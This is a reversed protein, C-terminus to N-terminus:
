DPELKVLLTSVLLRAALVDDIATEEGRDFAGVASDLSERIQRLCNRVDSESWQRAMLTERTM